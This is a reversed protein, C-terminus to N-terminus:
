ESIGPCRAQDEPDDHQLARRPRRDRRHHRGDPYGRSSEQDNAGSEQGARATLPHGLRVLEDLSQAGLGQGSLGVPVHRPDQDGLGPRDEPERIQTGQPSGLEQRDHQRPAAALSLSEQDSDVRRRGGAPGQARGPPVQDVADGLQKAVHFKDFAIKHEAGPVHALTSDIFPGWMDMAVTRLGALTEAPQAAYWADLTSRKRNDAAYLVRDESSIVTVYQHRRQFATEDIGIADPFDQPRRALGRAVAREQVGSVASWSLGLREAFELITGIKLWDIVLAEFLATLRSNNESGLAGAASPRWAGSVSRAPGSRGALDQVPLHRSAAM